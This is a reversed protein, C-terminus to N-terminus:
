NCTYFYLYELPRDNLKNVKNQVKKIPPHLGGLMFVSKQESKTSLKKQKCKSHNNLLFITSLNKKTFSKENEYFRRFSM